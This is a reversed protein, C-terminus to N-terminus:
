REWGRGRSLAIAAREKAYELSEHWTDGADDGDWTYRFLLWGPEASDDGPESPAAGERLKALIRLAAPDKVPTNRMVVLVDAPPMQHRVDTGQTLEPPLGVYHKTKGTARDEEAFVAFMVRVTNAM